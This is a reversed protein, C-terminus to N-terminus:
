IADPVKTWSFTLEGDYTYSSDYKRSFNYETDLVWADSADSQKVWSTGSPSGWAGSGWALDGWGDVAVGSTTKTQKTWAM